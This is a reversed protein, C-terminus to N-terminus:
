DSAAGGQEIMITPVACTQDRVTFVATGPKRGQRVESVNFGAGALRANIAEPRRVRWALGGFRDPGEGPGTLASAGIEVVAGGVRFFMLRNGLQPNTRDLRLDLGLRGGYLAVARDPNPTAVVVHDLEAVAAREDGLPASLPFALAADRQETLFIQTGHTAATSAVAMNWYHKAGSSPDDGRLLAPPSTPVGRRELLRAASALDRVAFALSWLGEGTVGPGAYAMLNLAANPLQFWVNRAGNAEGRWSPARGLLTQYREAAADLDNVALDIHDLAHIM